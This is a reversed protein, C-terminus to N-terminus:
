KVIAIIRVVLKDFLKGNNVWIKGLVLGNIMFSFWLILGIKARKRSQIDSVELWACHSNYSQSRKSAYETLQIGGSPPDYGRTIGSQTQLPDIHATPVSKASQSLTVLSNGLM